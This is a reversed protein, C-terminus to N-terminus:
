TRCVGISEELHRLLGKRGKIQCFDILTQMIVGGSDNYAVAELCFDARFFVMVPLRYSRSLMTSFVTEIEAVVETKTLGYKGAFSFIIGQM